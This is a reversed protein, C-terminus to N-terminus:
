CGSCRATAARPGRRDDGDRPAPRRDARVAALRRALARTLEGPPELPEARAGERRRARRRLLAIQLLLLEEFALRRRGGEHDGFHAADLAAARDPLRELARLRPRCRSSRRRRRAAGSARWRSSRPRAVPGRHGPLHGGRRRPASRRAPRRTSPSASATAARTSARSCCGRARAPVQAGAVAPQLVDGEDRRDRRRRGGRRAAADRAPAGPPQTISRVEVVVTATESPRSSASRARRRATARCTSSCTASRTCGSGSRARPPPPRRSRCRRRSGRRGRTARRAPPTCPTTPSRSPPPSAGPDRTSQSRAATPRGFTLPPQTPPRTRVTAAACRRM